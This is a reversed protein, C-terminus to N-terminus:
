KRICHACWNHHLWHSVAHTAVEAATLAGLDRTMKAAEWEEEGVVGRGQNEEGSWGPLDECWEGHQAERAEQESCADLEVSVRVLNRTVLAKRAQCIGPRAHGGVSDKLYVGIM